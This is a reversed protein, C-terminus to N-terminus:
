NLGNVPKGEKIKEDKKKKQLFTFLNQVMYNQMNQIHGIEDKHTM